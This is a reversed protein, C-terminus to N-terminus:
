QGSGLDWIAAGVHTARRYAASSGALFPDASSGSGSRKALWAISTELAPEDIDSVHFNINSTIM